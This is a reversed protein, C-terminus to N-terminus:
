GHHRIRRLPRSRHRGRSLPASRALADVDATEGLRGGLSRERRSAKPCYLFPTIPAIEFTSPGPKQFILIPEWAPKLATGFGELREAAELIKARRDAEIEKAAKKRLQKSINLSKPFGSGYLWQLTSTGFRQVLAPAPVFRARRIGASILDWTRSSAFSALYGGPRLVRFCEEWIPVSPIEWKAGMFDGGTDLRAGALYAKIQQATPQKDGLGYPPDCIVADISNPPIRPLVNECAGHVLTRYQPRAKASRM